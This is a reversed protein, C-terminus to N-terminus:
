CPIPRETPNLRTWAIRRSTEPGNLTKWRKSLACGVAIRGTTTMDSRSCRGPPLEWASLFAKRWFILGAGGAVGVMMLVLGATVFKTRGRLAHRRVPREVAVFTLLALVLSVAICGWLRATSTDGVQQLRAFVLVPWHWLYLAYSVLGLGVMPGVSFVVRGIWTRGGGALILSSGLVPLLAPWGPYVMSPNLLFFCAVIVLLGGGSMWEQRSSASDDQESPTSTMALLAGVLLEWARTHPLFYSAGPFPGSWVVSAVFSGTAALALVVWAGTRGSLRYSAWLLIPFILYFQEEIGLSWLHLLPLFRAEADFYGTEQWYGVNAAFASGLVVHKALGELNWAPLWLWGAVLCASLVVLLAPFLRRIRRAFFGGLNLQGAELSNLLIRTILLGSIVFFVDVGVFGGPVWTPFAHFAVVMLVSLGRLGDIHREYTLPSPHPHVLM